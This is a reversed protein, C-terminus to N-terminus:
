LFPSMVVESHILDKFAASVAVVVLCFRLSFGPENLFPFSLFPFCILFLTASYNLRTSLGFPQQLGDDDDNYLTLM